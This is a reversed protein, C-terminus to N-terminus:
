KAVTFQVRRNTAKAEPAGHPVLPRQTGFGTVALQAPDVGRKVLEDRVRQARRTSLDRNDFGKAEGDRNAHGEVTIRSAPCQKLIDFAENVVRETTADLVVVSTGQGFLVTNRKTLADLDNQCTNPPDIICGTQRLGISADLKIGAERAESLSTEVESKILDRCTLGRISVDDASISASGLDLRLLNALALRAADAFGAPAGPLLVTADSAKGGFPSAEIAALLTARAAEDPLYGSLRVGSRDVSISLPYPRIRLAAQDIRLSLGEPAPQRALAAQLRVWNEGSVEGTLTL